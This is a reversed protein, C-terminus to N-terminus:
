INVLKNFRLFGAFALLCAATLRVNSLTPHENTDAVMAKLIDATIPEKKSVLKALARRLGELTTTVLSNETPSPVSALNHAWTMSYVAEEVTAKSGTTEALHRLYLVLHHEKVPFPNLQHRM